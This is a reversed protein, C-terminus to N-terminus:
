TPRTLEEIPVPEDELLVFDYVILRVDAPLEMFRFHQDSM